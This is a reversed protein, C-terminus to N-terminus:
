SGVGFACSILLLVRLVLIVILIVLQRNNGVCLYDGRLQLRFLYFLFNFLVFLV